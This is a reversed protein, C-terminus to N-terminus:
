SYFQSFDNLFQQSFYVIYEFLSQVQSCDFIKNTYECSLIPFAFTPIKSFDLSFIECKHQNIPIIFQIIFSITFNLIKEKM